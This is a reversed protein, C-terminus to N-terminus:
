LIFDKPDKKYLIHKGLAVDNMLTLLAILDVYSIGFNM